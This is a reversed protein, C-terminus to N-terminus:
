GNQPRGADLVERVKRAMSAATFPKQLFAANAEMVSNRVVSDDTYGSMYLVKISPQLSALCEAVKRGSIGPLVLDTLLLHIPEQRQRALLLAHEPSTSELVKYGRDELVKGALARVAEEDEVLLITESGAPADTRLEAPQASQNDEGVQPLYIKFTTGRGPESYVWIYGGSQRVIGYVIALGLGTGKGLEKTSFFPEFIRARTEADMGVGTDSVALM